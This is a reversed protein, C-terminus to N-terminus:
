ESSPIFPVKTFQEHREIFLPDRSIIDACNENFSIRSFSRVFSFSNRELNECIEVFNEIENERFNQGNQKTTIKQMEIKVDLLPTRNLM